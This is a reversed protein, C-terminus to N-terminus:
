QRAMWLGIPANFAVLALVASLLPVVRAEVVAVAGPNTAPIVSDGLVAPAGEASAGFVQGDMMGDINHRALPLASM